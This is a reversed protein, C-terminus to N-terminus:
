KVFRRNRMGPVVVVLIVLATVVQQMYFSVGMQNLLNNVVGIILTAVLTGFVSGTGGALAAGGLVTVALVKLELGPFAAPNIYGLRASEILGTIAACLGCFAFVVIKVRDIRIGSLLAARANGGTAYLKRGFTSSRTMFVCALAMVALLFIPVPVGLLAGRGFWMYEAIKEPYTAQGASFINALASAIGLMALTSILSSVGLKAVFIGNVIGLCLGCLLTAGIILAPSGTPLLLGGIVISLVAVGAVSLDIEGTIVVMTMGFALIGIGAVATLVVRLNEPSLFGPYLIQGAVVLVGLVVIRSLDGIEPLFRMQAWGGAANISSKEEIITM